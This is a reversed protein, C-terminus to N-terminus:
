VAQEPLVTAPTRQVKAVASGESTAEDQHGPHVGLKSYDMRALRLIRNIQKHVHKSAVGLKLESFISLIRRHQDVKQQLRRKWLPGKRVKKPTDRMEGAIVAAAAYELANLETINLPYERAINALAQNAMEINQDLEKNRRVHKLKRMAFSSVKIAVSELELLKVRIRTEMEHVRADCKPVVVSLDDM